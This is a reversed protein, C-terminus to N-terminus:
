ILAHSVLRMGGIAGPFTVPMQLGALVLLAMASRLRGEMQLVVQRVEEARSHPVGRHAEARKAPNVSSGGSM